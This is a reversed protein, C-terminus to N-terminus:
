RGPIGARGGQARTHRPSPRRDPIHADRCRCLGVVANGDGGTRRARRTRDGSLVGRAIGPDCLSGRCRRGTSRHGDRICQDRLRGGSDRGCVRGACAHTRRGEPRRSLGSGARRRSSPRGGRRRCDKADGRVRSRPPRAGSVCSITRTRRTRSTGPLMVAPLQYGLSKGSGTPMVALVDRGGLVAAVIEEQGQRFARHGFSARLRTLPDNATLGNTASM